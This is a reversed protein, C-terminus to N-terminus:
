MFIALAELYLTTSRGFSSEEVNQSIASAWKKVINPYVAFISAYLFLFASIAEFVVMIYHYSFSLLSKECIVM